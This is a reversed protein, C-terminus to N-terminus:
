ATAGYRRERVIETRREISDHEFGEGYMFMTQEIRVTEGVVKVTQEYVNGGLHHTFLVSYIPTIWTERREIMTGWFGDNEYFSTHKVNVTHERDGSLAAEEEFRVGEMCLFDARVHEYEDGTVTQIM